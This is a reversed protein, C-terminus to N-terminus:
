LDGLEVRHEVHLVVFGRGNFRKLLVEIRDPGMERSTHSRSIPVESDHNEITLNNISLGCRGALPRSMPEM